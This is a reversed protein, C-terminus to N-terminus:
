GATYTSTMQVAFWNVHIAGTTSKAVNNGTFIAISANDATVSYVRTTLQGTGAAATNLNSFCNPPLTFRGAPFNFSATRMTQNSMASFAVTGSAIAYPFNATGHIVLQTGYIQVWVRSNLGPRPGLCIPTAALASSDGDLRVRLPSQQVVTAWKWSSPTPEEMGPLSRGASALSWDLGKEIEERSM